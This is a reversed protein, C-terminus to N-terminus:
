KWVLIHKYDDQTDLLVYVLYLVDEWSIVLIRSSRTGADTTCKGKRTSKGCM